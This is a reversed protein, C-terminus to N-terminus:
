ALQLTGFGRALEAPAASWVAVRGDLGSSTFSHPSSPMARLCTVTNMHMGRPAGGSADGDSAAEGRETQSRFSALRESFASKRESSQSPAEETAALEGALIWGADRTRMLVVPVCDFGAAIALSDSLFLLTLWPLEDSALPVATVPGQAKDGLAMWEGARSADLGCMFHAGGGHTVAALTSGSPAWAVSHVWGSALSWQLLLDGFKADGGVPASDVGRVAAAMIRVCGDACATALLPQTPHWAVGLVSSEHHKKVLKGVWWNNDREFYCISVSGAGSGVAFKTDGPAWACCLAARTLHHVVLAPTWAAGPAAPPTWVYVNRDHSCSLLRHSTCGWDLSCVLQDHERLV